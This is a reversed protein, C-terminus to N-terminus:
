NLLHALKEKLRARTRRRIQRINEPTTNWKEALAKAVGAPLHENASGTKYEIDAAMIDREREPLAELEAAMAQVIPTDEEQFEDPPPSSGINSEEELEEAPAQARLLDAVVHNAIGGLWARVSRPTREADCADLRKLDFTSASLYARQFTIQVVDKVGEDWDVIQGIRRTRVIGRLWPEHRGYFEGFAERASDDARDGGALAM